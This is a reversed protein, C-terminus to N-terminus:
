TAYCDFQKATDATDAAHWKALSSVQQPRPKNRVSNELRKLTALSFNEHKKSLM